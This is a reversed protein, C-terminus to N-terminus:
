SKTSFQRMNLILSPPSRVIRGSGLSAPKINQVGLHDLADHRCDGVVLQAVAPNEGEHTSRQPPDTITEGAAEDCNTPPDVLRWLLKPNFGPHLDIAIM